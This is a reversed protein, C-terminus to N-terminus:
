FFSSNPEIKIKIKIEGCVQLKPCHEVCHEMCSQLVQTNSMDLELLTDSGIYVTELPTSNIRLIELSPFYLEKKGNKDAQKGIFLSSIGTVGCLDLIKLNPSRTAVM